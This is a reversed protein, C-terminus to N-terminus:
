AYKWYVVHATTTTTVAIMKFNTFAALDVELYDGVALPPGNGATGTTPSTGDDYWRLPAGNTDNAILAHTAGGPPSLGVTSGTTVSLKEPPGVPTKRMPAVFLVQAKAGSTLEVARIVTTAGATAVSFDDAM